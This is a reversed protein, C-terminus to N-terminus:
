SPSESYTVTQAKSLGLADLITPGPDRRGRLVDSLYQRTVGHRAAWSAASAQGIDERLKARVDDATM